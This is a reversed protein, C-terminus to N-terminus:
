LCVLHVLVVRLVPLDRPVRTELAALFVLLDLSAMLVLLALKVLFVLLGLQVLLVLHVSPVRTVVSVRLVLKERHLDFSDVEHLQKINM